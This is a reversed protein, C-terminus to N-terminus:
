WHVFCHAVLLPFPFALFELPDGSFVDFERARDTDLKHPPDNWILVCPHRDEWSCTEMM